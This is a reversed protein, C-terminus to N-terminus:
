SGGMLLLTILFTRKRGVLDGLRGFVLSGFPRVLFGSAFALLTLIFASADNLGSFFQRAIVSALSGYLYFDYFEFLAGLSSAWIVHRLVRRTAPDSREATTIAMVKKNRSQRSRQPRGIRAWILM